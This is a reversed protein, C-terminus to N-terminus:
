LDAETAIHIGDCIVLFSPIQQHGDRCIVLMSYMNPFPHYGGVLSNSLIDSRQMPNTM